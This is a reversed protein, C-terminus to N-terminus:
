LSQIPLKNAICPVYCLLGVEDQEAVFNWQCKLNNVYNAPWDPTSFGGADGTIVEPRILTCAALPILLQSYTLM